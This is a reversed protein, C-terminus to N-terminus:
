PTSMGQAAVPTDDSVRANRGLVFAAAAGFLVVLMLAALINSQITSFSFVNGASFSPL